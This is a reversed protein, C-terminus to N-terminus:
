YIAGQQRAGPLITAWLCYLDDGLSGILTCVIHIGEALVAAPLPVAAGPWVGVAYM